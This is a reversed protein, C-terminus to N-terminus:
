GVVEMHCTSNIDVIISQLDLAVHGWTFHRNDSKIKAHWSLATEQTWSSRHSTSPGPLLGQQLWDSWPSPSPSAQQWPVKRPCSLTSSWLLSSSPPSSDAGLQLDRVSLGTKETRDLDSYEESLVNTEGGSQACSSLWDDRHQRHQLKM